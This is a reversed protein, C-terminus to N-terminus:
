FDQTNYSGLSFLYNRVSTLNIYTKQLIEFGRWWYTIFVLSYVYYYDNWLAVHSIYLRFHSLFLTPPTLHFFSSILPLFYLLSPDKCLLTCTHLDSWSLCCYHGRFVTADMTVCIIFDSSGYEGWWLWMLVFLVVSCAASFRTVRFLLTLSIVTRLKQGSM